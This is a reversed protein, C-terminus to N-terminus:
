LCGLARVYVIKRNCWPAHEEDRRRLSLLPARRKIQPILACLSRGCQFNRIDPGVGNYSGLVESDKSLVEDHVQLVSVV